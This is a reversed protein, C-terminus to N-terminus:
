EEGSTAAAVGAPESRVALWDCVSPWLEKQARSGVALGIHGARFTIAKRDQSGVLDNFPLSQGCPVLDDREAMLNLVPCVINKLNVIRRGVPMQGKVLLNQQYLYKTFQRYVEGPVPINDNLWTEMAFFDDIYSEDDLREFFNIPKEILNQIPKLLLFTAQLFEAPCNGYTDVFRDVDFYKQDTWVNLLGERGEFDIGAAMLILNRVRDPYLSTFMASMAGGMCYGLISVQESETRQRIHDVVNLMYGDIYDELGLHRDAYTPVGWDILYTDFGRKVFHEVVSKGPKLDLIYPRNVLAFVFVLPTAYHPESDSLYHLVKLNDEEYVVECPSAGKRVRQAHEWLFPIRTLRRVNAFYEDMMARQYASPNSTATRESM